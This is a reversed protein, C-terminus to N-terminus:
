SPEPASEDVPHYATHRTLLWAAMGVGVLFVVNVTWMVKAGTSLRSAWIDAIVVLYLVGIAIKFVDV